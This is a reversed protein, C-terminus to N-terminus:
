RGRGSRAFALGIVGIALLFVTAPEPVNSDERFEPAADFLLQSDESDARVGTATLFELQSIDYTIVGPAFVAGPDGITAGSTILIPAFPMSIVGVDFVGSEGTSIRMAALSIGFGASPEAQMELAPASGGVAVGALAAIALMALRRMKIGTRACM